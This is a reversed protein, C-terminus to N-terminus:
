AVTAAGPEAVAATLSMGGYAMALVKRRREDEAAIGYPEFGLARYLPTEVDYGCQPMGASPDWGDQMCIRYCAGSMGM